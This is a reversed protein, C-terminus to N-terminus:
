RWLNLGLFNVWCWSRAQRTSLSNRAGIVAPERRVQGIVGVEAALDAQPGDRM